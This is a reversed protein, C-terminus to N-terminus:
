WEAVSLWKKKGLSLGPPRVCLNQEQTKCTRRYRGTNGGSCGPQTQSKGNSKIWPKIKGKKKERLRDNSAVSVFRSERHVSSWIPVGFGHPQIHSSASTLAPCPAPYFSSAHAPSPCPEATAAQGSDSAQIRLVALLFM